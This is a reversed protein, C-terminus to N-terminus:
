IGPKLTGSAPQKPSSNIEEQSQFVGIWDYVFYNNYPQGVEITGLTPALLKTVKNDYKHFLVSVGYNFDGINKRHRLEIEVGTNQMAGANVVPATLGVSSPLDARTSLIDTTNRKYWDITAGFLGKFIDIDLGFDLM